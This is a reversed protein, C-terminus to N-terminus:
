FGGRLAKLRGGFLDPEKLISDPTMKGTSRLVGRKMENDEGLKKNACRPM